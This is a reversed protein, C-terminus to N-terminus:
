PKEISDELAEIRQVLKNIILQQEQIAKIAVVSLGSYDMSLMTEDNPDGEVLAPFLEIVEQAIFGISREVDPTDRFVYSKPSLKLVNVLAPDLDEITEKLRIDSSSTYSGNLSNIRAKFVGNLFFELASTKPSTIIEWTSVSNQNQVIKIGDFVSLEGFLLFKEANMSSIDQNLSLVTSNGDNLYLFDPFNPPNMINFDGISVQGVKLTPPVDGVSANFEALVETANELRISKFGSGAPVMKVTGMQYSGAKATGSLDVTQGIVTSISFLLICTSFLMTKNLISLKM